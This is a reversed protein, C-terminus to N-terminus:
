AFGLTLDSNFFLWLGYLSESVLEQSSCYTDFEFKSLEVEDFFNNITQRMKFM